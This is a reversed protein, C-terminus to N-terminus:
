NSDCRNKYRTDTVSIIHWGKGTNMLRFSNVGCHSLKKEFWFEYPTWVHTMLGDSNIKYELIKEQFNKEEPINSIDLLFREVNTAKLIAVDNSDVFITQLTFHDSITKKIAVSDRAHFGDFFNNISEKIQEEITDQARSVVSSCSILILLFGLKFKMGQLNIQSQLKSSKRM